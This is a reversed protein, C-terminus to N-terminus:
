LNTFLSIDHFIRYLTKIEERTLLNGTDTNFLDGIFRLGKRDWEPIFSTQYKTYDSFWIQERIIEDPTLKHAENFQILSSIVESWFVTKIRTKVKRLQQSGYM